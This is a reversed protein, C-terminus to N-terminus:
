GVFRDRQRGRGKQGQDIDCGYKRGDDPSIEVGADEVDEGGDEAGGDALIDDDWLGERDELAEDAGDGLGRVGFGM